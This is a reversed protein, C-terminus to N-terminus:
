EDSGEMGIDRLDILRRYRGQVGTPEVLGKRAWSQWYKQVTGFGAKSSAAVERIQRGDSEQYIRRLASGSLETALLERLSGIALFRLWRKSERVEKLLDDEWSM